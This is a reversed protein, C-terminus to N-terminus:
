DAPRGVIPPGFRVDRSTQNYLQENSESSQRASECAASGEGKLAVCRAYEAQARDMDEKAAALQAPPQLNM